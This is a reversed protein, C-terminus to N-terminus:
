EPKAFASEPIEANILFETFKVEGIKQDNLNRISATPVRMGDIERYETFIQQVMGEGVPTEQTAYRCVVDHNAKSIGLRCIVQYRFPKSSCPFGANSAVKSIFRFRVHM